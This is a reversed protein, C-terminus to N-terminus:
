LQCVKDIVEGVNDKNILKYSYADAIDFGSEDQYDTFLQTLNVYKSGIGHKWSYNCIKKAKDIGAVDNDAIVLINDITESLKKMYRDLYLDNYVHSQFTIGAIGLKHAITVCKEGELMVINKNELYERKYIALHTLKSPIGKIWEKTSPNYYEPYLDKPKDRHDYRTVRFDGYNFYTIILDSTRVQDPKKYPINTLFLDPTCSIPIPTVVDVLPNLRYSQRKFQPPSSTYSFPYLLKRIKNEGKHCEETYCAYAGKKYATNAIKLKGGCVPCKAIIWSPNIKVDELKELSDLINFSM